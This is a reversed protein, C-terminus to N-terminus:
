KLKRSYREVGEGSSIGPFFEEWGRMAKQYPMQEADNDKVANNESRVERIPKSAHGFGGDESEDRTEEVAFGVGVEEDAFASKQDLVEKPVDKEGDRERRLRGLSMSGGIRQREQEIFRWPKEPARWDVCSLGELPVKKSLDEQGPMKSDIAFTGHYHGTNIAQRFNRYCLNSQIQFIRTDEETADPVPDASPPADFPMHIQNPPPTPLSSTSLARSQQASSLGFPAGVPGRPARHEAKSTKARDQKQEAGAHLEEMQQKMPVRHMRFRIPSRKLCQKAAAEEKYIVLAANPASLTDYKLSKFYEIEGFQSILRM